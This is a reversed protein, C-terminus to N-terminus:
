PNTPFVDNTNIGLVLLVQMVLQLIPLMAQDRQVNYSSTKLGNEIKQNSRIL